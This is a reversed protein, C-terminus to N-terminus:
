VLIDLVISKQNHNYYDIGFKGKVSIIWNFDSYVYLKKNIYVNLNFNM